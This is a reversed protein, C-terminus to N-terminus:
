RPRIVRRAAHPRKSVLRLALHQRHRIVFHRRINQLLRLFQDFPCSRGNPNSGTGFLRDLPCFLMSAEGHRSFETSDTFKNIPTVGWPPSGGDTPLKPMHSSNKVRYADDGQEGRGTTNEPSAPSIPSVVASSAMGYIIVVRIMAVMTSVMTVIASVVAVLM